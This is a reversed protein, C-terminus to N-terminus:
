HTPVKLGEVAEVIEQRRQDLEKGELVKLIISEPIKYLKARRQAHRSLKIAM